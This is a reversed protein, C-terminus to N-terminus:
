LNTIIKNLFIFLLCHIILLVPVWLRFKVHSTKHKFLLMAICSGLSGGIIAFFILTKESIRHWRKIAFFKDAGMAFFSIANIILLYYIVYIM